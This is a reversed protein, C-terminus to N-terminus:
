CRSGMMMRGPRMAVFEDPVEQQANRFRRMGDSVVAQLTQKESPSMELGPYETLRLKCMPLLLQRHWEGPLDPIDDDDTATGDMGMATVERWGTWSLSYDQDPYPYVSIAKRPDSSILPMDWLTWYSAEGVDVSTPVTRNSTVVFGYDGVAGDWYGQRRLLLEPTIHQLFGHGSVIMSERKIAACDSPVLTTDYYIVAGTTSGSALTIYEKLTVSTGSYSQIQVPFGLSPIVIHCGICNDAPTFGSVSTLTQSGNTYSCSFTVDGKLLAGFSKRRFLWNQEYFISDVASQIITQLYTRQMVTATSTTGDTAILGLFNQLEAEIQLRTM